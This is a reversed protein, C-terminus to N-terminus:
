PEEGLLVGVYRRLHNLVDDLSSPIVRTGTAEMFGAEVTYRPVVHIHLHEISAGGVKGLNIGIDFGEPNYAAKLLKISRQVMKFLYLLDDDTLDLISIYHRKPVVMIHGLTYPFVNLMVMLKEDEYVVKREIRPDNNAIACFVCGISEHERRYYTKRSKAWIYDKYVGAYSIQEEKKDKKKSVKKKM